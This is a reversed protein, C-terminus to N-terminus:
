ICCGGRNFTDKEKPQITSQFRSDELSTLAKALESFAHELNVGTKASVEFGLANSNQTFKEFDERLKCLQADGNIILDCKNWLLLLTISPDTNQRVMHVWERLSSLGSKSVGDFVVAAADACRFYPKTLSRFREQGATDWVQMIVRSGDCNIIKTGFDAGITSPLTSIYSSGILRRLISSKGTGSDGVLTVKYIRTAGCLDSQLQGMISADQSDFRTICNPGNAAVATNFKQSAKHDSIFANDTEDQNIEEVETLESGVSAQSTSTTRFYAGLVSGRRVDIPQQPLPNGNELGPDLCSTQLNGLIDVPKVLPGEEELNQRTVTHHCPTESMLLKDGRKEYRVRDLPYCFSRKERDEILKKNIDRLADMQRVLNERELAINESMEIAAKARNKKDEKARKRLTEIYEKCENLISRDKTLRKKLEDNEQALQEKEKVASVRAANFEDLQVRAQDYKTTLEVLLRDHVQSEKLLEEKLKREEEQEKVLLRDKEDKFQQELEDALGSMQVEQESLKQQIINEMNKHEEQMVKMERVINSLVKEYEPLLSNRRRRLQKWIWSVQGYENALIEAGAAQLSQNLQEDDSDEECLVEPSFMTAQEIPLLRQDIKSVFSDVPVFGAGAVDMSSFITDLLEDDCELYEKLRSLDSRTVYGRNAIDCLEYLKKAREAATHDFQM